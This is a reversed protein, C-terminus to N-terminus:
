RMTDPIIRIDFSNRAGAFTEEGRECFIGTNNDAVLKRTEKKRAHDGASRDEWPRTAFKRRVVHNM